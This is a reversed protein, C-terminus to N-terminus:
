FRLRIWVSDIKDTDVEIQGLLDDLKDILKQLQEEDLLLPFVLLQSTIIPEIAEAHM